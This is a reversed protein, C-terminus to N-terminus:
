ANPTMLMEAMNLTAIDVPNAYDPQWTRAIELVYRLHQELLEARATADSEWSQMMDITALVSPIHLELPQSM